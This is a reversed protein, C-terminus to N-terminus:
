SGAVPRVTAVAPGTSDVTFNTKETSNINNSTDNAIFTVNYYGENSTNGFSFNYIDGVKVLRLQEKTTNNPYTVNALVIDVDGGTVNASINVVSNTATFNNAVPRVNTVIPAVTDVGTHSSFFSTNFRLVGTTANYSIIACSTGNCNAGNNLIETRNTSFDELRRIQDVTGLNLGYFTINASSNIVGIDFASSNVAATNNGIFLNTGLAIGGCDECVDITLNQLFSLNTWRIEGFSNNYVFYNIYTSGTSDTLQPSPADSFNNNVLTNNESVAVLNIGRVLLTNNRLESHSANNLFIGGASSISSANIRNNEVTTSNANTMSVGAGNLSFITNSSILNRAAGNTMAIGAASSGNVTINNDTINNFSSNSDIGIGTAITGTTNINNATINSSSANLGLFIGTIGTATTTVTNNTVTASRLRQLNIGFSGPESGARITNNSITINFSLASSAIIGLSYNVIGGFNRISVNEVNGVLVGLGSGNGTITFGNGDIFINSATINFCTGNSMLNKTLILNASITGCGQEVTFNTKETANINGATDNAIFTINYTGLQTTNGFSYNYIDGVKALRLQEKTTNNPYTVNALVSDVDGGIGTVNASINVVSNQPTFNNAIPRVNTVAPAVTDVGTHSSFFSTNFRLVGTTANYSVIECSTGNCNAGNNLIETRNTSFADLRRIQNVTGLNLGYLTINASSNIKPASGFASTNLSATNNGIFLNIGLGIEGLVDLDKLFSDNTDNTWRIEGFTNNYILYNTFNNGTSDSIATTVATINNNLFTNNHAGFELLIEADIITNSEVFNHSSRIYIARGTGTINFTNQKIITGNSNGEGFFIGQGGGQPTIRNLTINNRLSTSISIGDGQTGSTNITNTSINNNNSNELRIGEGFTVNAAVITNNFISSNEVNLFDIGRTFNLIGAFNRITINSFGTSSIGAGTTNGTITFGNGDLFINSAGITFCTGPAIVNQDLTTNSTIVGCLDGTINEYTRGTGNNYLYSINAGSLVSNWIAFDDISGNFTTNSDSVAGNGSASRSIGIYMTRLSPSWDGSTYNTYNVQTGNVYLTLNKTDNNYTGAIHTWANIPITINSRANVMGGSDNRLQWTLCPNITPCDGAIFLQVTPNNSGTHSAVHRFVYYPQDSVPTDNMYIWAQWSFNAYSLNYWSVNVFNTNASGNFQMADTRNGKRDTTASTNIVIGSRSDNRQNIALTENLSWWDILTANIDALHSAYIEPVNTIFLFFFAWVLFFLMVLMRTKGEKNNKNM